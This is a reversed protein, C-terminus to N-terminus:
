NGCPRVLDPNFQLANPDLTYEVIWSPTPHYPAISPVEAITGSFPGDIIEVQIRFFHGWSGNWDRLIKVIRIRTGADVTGIVAKRDWFITDVEIPTLLVSGVSAEERGAWVKHPVLLEKCEGLLVSPQPQVACGSGSFVIAFLALRFLRLNIM